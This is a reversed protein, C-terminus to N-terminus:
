QGRPSRPRAASCASELPPAACGDDGGRGGAPRRTAPPLDRIGGGRHEGPAPHLPGLVSQAQAARRPHTPRTGDGTGLVNRAQKYKKVSCQPRAVNKLSLFLYMSVQVEKKAPLDTGGRGLGLSTATLGPGMRKATVWWGCAACTGAVLWCFCVRSPNGGGTAMILVEWM